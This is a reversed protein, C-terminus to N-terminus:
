KRRSVRLSSRNGAHRGAAAKRCDLCIYRLAAKRGATAEVAAPVPLAHATGRHCPEVDDSREGEANDSGGRQTGDDGGDHQTASFPSDWFFQLTERVIEASTAPRM